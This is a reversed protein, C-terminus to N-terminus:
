QRQANTGYPQRLRPMQRYHYGISTKVSIEMPTSSNSSHGRSPSFSSWVPSHLGSFTARGARCGSDSLRAGQHRRTSHCQCCTKRGRRETDSAPVVSQSCHARSVLPPVPFIPAFDLLFSLLCRPSPQIYLCTLTSPTCIVPCSVSHTPHAPLCGLLGWDCLLRGCSVRAYFALGKALSLRGATSAARAQDHKARHAYLAQAPVGSNRSAERGCVGVAKANDLSSM